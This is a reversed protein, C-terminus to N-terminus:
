SAKQIAEVIAKNSAADAFLPPQIFGLKRAKKVARDSVVLLQSALLAKGHDSDVMMVLNQLSENSTVVILLNRKEDWCQYLAAPDSAPIFRRYCEIYEVDAGRERLTKALLERGGEGRFILIKQGTLDKLEPLSLLAETNFPEPAVLDVSLGYSVLKAATAAGVAAISVGEPWHSVGGLADIGFDVANASIFIAMDASSLQDLKSQLSDPKTPPLIEIVPFQVVTGGAQSISECLPQAQHAPRTIVVTLGTLSKDM